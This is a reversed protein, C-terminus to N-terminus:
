KTLLKPKPTELEVLKRDLELLKRDWLKLLENIQDLISGYFVFEEYHFERIFDDRISKYDSFDGAIWYKEALLKVEDENRAQRHVSGCIRTEQNVFELTLGTFNVEYAYGNTWINESLMGKTKLADTFKYSAKQEFDKNARVRVEHEEDLRKKLNVYREYLNM